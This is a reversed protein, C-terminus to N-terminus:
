LIYYFLTIKEAAETLQILMCAALDCLPLPLTMYGPTPSQFDAHWSGVRLSEMGTVLLPCGLFVSLRKAKGGLCFKFDLSTHKVIFNFFLVKYVFNRSIKIEHLGM